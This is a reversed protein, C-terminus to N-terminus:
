NLEYQQINHYSDESWFVTVGENSPVVKMDNAIVRLALAKLFKEPQEKFTNVMATELEEKSKWQGFFHYPM